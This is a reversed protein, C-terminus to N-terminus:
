VTIDTAAYPAKPGTSGFANISVHVIRPNIAQVEAASPWRPKASETDPSDILFDAAAILRSLLSRGQDLAPDCILSRNGSGYASWFLSNDGPPADDAYPGVWRAPSGAPPEVQVVDAGLQALMHGALSGRDDSLDLVRYCSLYGTMKSGTLRPPQQHYLM